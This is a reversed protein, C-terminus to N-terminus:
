ACGVDTVTMVIFIGLVHYDVRLLFVGYLLLYDCGGADM